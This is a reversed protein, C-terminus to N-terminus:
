FFDEARMRRRSRRPRMSRNPESQEVGTGAVPQVFMTRGPANVLGDTTSADGEVDGVQTTQSEAPENAIAEGRLRRIERVVWEKRNIRPAKNRNMKALEKRDSDKLNPDIEPLNLRLVQSEDAKVAFTVDAKIDRKKNKSKNISGNPDGATECKKVFYNILSEYQMEPLKANDALAKIVAGDLMDDAANTSPVAGDAKVVKDKAEQSGHKSLETGVEEEMKELGDQAM